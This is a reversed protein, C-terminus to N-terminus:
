LRNTGPELGPPGVLFWAPDREASPACDRLHAVSHAVDQYGRSSICPVLSRPRRSGLGMSDRGPGSGEPEPHDKSTLHSPNRAMTEM